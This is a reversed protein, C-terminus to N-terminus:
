DNDMKGGEKERKIKSISELIRQKKKRQEQLIKKKKYIHNM